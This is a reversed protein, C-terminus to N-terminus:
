LLADALVDLVVLTDVEQGLGIREVVDIGLDLFHEASLVPFALDGHGGMRAKLARVFEINQALRQLWAGAIREGAKEAGAIARGPRMTSGHMQDTNLRRVRKELEGGADAVVKRRGSRLEAKRAQDRAIAPAEDGHAPGLGM